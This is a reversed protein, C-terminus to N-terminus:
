RLSNAVALLDSEKLSGFMAMVYGHDLWFVGSGIGTDDGVVYGTTGRISVPHAQQADVGIPVMLTRVPDGIARIQAALAPPVGPQALAYDRLENVSAGDSTVVPAKAQVLLLGSSQLLASDSATKDAAKAGFRQVIVPGGTMTLTTDAIAAPMPPATAGVKAAAAQAKAADFRFTAKGQPMVVVQATSPISAPLSAPVLPTFGAEAAAATVDTVTHPTPKAIWTLTGYQSPDPIGSLEGPQVEITAVRQPEFITLFTGALGTASLALAVVVVAVAAALPRSWPRTVLRAAWGTVETTRSTPASPEHLTRERFRALAAAANFEPIPGSLLKEDREDM